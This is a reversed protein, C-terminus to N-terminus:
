LGGLIKVRRGPRFLRAGGECAECGSRHQEEVELTPSNLNRIKTTM